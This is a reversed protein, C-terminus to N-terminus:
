VKWRVGPCALSGPTQYAPSDGGASKRLSSPPTVHLPTSPQFSCGIRKLHHGGSSWVGSPEIRCETITSGRSGACRYTFAEPPPLKSLVSRPALQAGRLSATSAFKLGSGYGSYPCSGCQM